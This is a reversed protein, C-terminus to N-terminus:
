LADSPHKEGLNPILAELTMNTEETVLSGKGLLGSGVELLAPEASCAM